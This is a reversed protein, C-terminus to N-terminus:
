FWLLVFFFFLFACSLILNNILYAGRTYHTGDKFRGAASMEVDFMQRRILILLAKDGVRLKLQLLHGHLVSPLDPLLPSPKLIRLGVAHPLVVM